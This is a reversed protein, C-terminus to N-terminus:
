SVNCRTPQLKPIYKHPVSMHIDFGRIADSICGSLYMQEEHVTGKSKSPDCRFEYLTNGTHTTDFM